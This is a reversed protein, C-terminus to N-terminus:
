CIPRSQEKTREENFPAEIRRLKTRRARSHQKIIAKQLIKRCRPFKRTIGHNQHIERERERLIWTRTRTTQM